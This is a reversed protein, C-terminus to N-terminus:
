HVDYLYASDVYTGGISTNALRIGEVSSNHGFVKQLEKYFTQNPSILKIKLLQGSNAPVDSTAEALERYADRPGIADVRPTAIVLLWDDSEAELLWLVGVVPFKNNRLSELLRKGFEIDPETLTQIYSMEM